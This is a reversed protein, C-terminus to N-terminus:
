FATEFGAANRHGGGGRLKAIESVDVRGDESRLGWRRVGDADWFYAAFPADPYRQLLAHAADSGQTYPCSLVPVRFSIDDEHRALSLPMQAKETPHFLWWQTGNEIWEAIDKEQKRIIAAGEAIMEQYAMTEDCRHMLWKWTQFDYPHSAVTAFIEKTHPVTWRWIDRDEMHDFLQPRKGGHIEDWTIGCGSRAMDFVGDVIKDALLDRMSAEATKHHDYVTVKHHEALSRMDDAPGCFDAFLIHAGAAIDSFPLPKGYNAPRFEVEDGWKLWVALASAFGDLCPFHYICIDPKNM